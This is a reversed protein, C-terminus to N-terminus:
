RLRHLPVNFPITPSLDQPTLSDLDPREIPASTSGEDGQGKERGQPLLPARNM